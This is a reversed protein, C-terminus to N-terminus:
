RARIRPQFELIEGRGLERWRERLAGRLLDDWRRPSEDVFRFLVVGGAGPSIQVASSSTQLARLDEIAWRMPGGAGASPRFEITGGELSLTGARGPGFREYYGLLRDRFRVAREEHAVRVRVRARRFLSGDPQRSGALAGGRAEIGRLLTAVTLESPEGGHGGEVRIRARPGGAEFTRGCNPCRVSPGAAATPDAGCFPCLYILDKLAM